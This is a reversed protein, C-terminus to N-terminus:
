GHMDALRSHCAACRPPDGGAPQGGCNVCRPEDSAHGRTENLMKALQKAQEETDCWEVIRPQGRAPGLPILIERDRVCFTAGSREAYFRQAKEQYEQALRKCGDVLHQWQKGQMDVLGQADSAAIEYAWAVWAAGRLVERRKNQGEEVQRWNEIVEGREYAAAQEDAYQRAKRYRLMWDREGM